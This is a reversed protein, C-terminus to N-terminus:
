TASLGALPDMDDFVCSMSTLLIVEFCPILMNKLWVLICLCGLTTHHTEEYLPLRSFYLSMQEIELTLNANEGGDLSEWNVVLYAVV